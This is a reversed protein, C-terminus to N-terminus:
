GNREVEPGRRQSDPRDPYLRRPNDAWESPSLLEALAADFRALLEGHVVELTYVSRMAATVTDATDGHSGNWWRLILEDDARERRPM